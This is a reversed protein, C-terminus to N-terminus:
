DSSNMDDFTIASDGLSESSLAAPLAVSRYIPVKYEQGVIKRKQGDERM